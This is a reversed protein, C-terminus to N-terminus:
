GDTGESGGTAAPASVSDTVVQYGDPASVAGGGSLAEYAAEDRATGAIRIETEEVSVSGSSLLQAASVATSAALRFRAPAGSAAKLGGTDVGAGFAATLESGIEDVAKSSPLVGSATVGGEAVEITFTFPDAGPLVDLNNTVGAVGPTSRVITLAKDRDTETSAAGIVSVKRGTVETRVWDLGEAALRDSVRAGLEVDTEARNGVSGVVVLIVITVIAAAVWRFM